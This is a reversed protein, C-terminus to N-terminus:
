INKTLPKAFLQALLPYEKLHPGGKLRIPKMGSLFGILPKGSWHAM